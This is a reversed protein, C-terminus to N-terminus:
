TFKKNKLREITIALSASNKAAEEINWKNEIFDRILSNYLPGKKARFVPCLGEKLENNLSCAALDKMLFLSPKYPFVIETIGANKKPKPIKNINIQLWKSFGERDAMLWTEAEGYAIRFLLNNNLSSNGFWDSILSPPCAYSDLDTLMFIPLGTNNYMPAKSKIEGGRVPMSNNITLDARYEKILRSIVARTVYDEGVIDIRM